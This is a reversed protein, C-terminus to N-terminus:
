SYDGRILLTAPGSGTAPNVEIYDASVYGALGGSSIMYWGNVKEGEITVVADKQLNGLISYSTGAGSRVRLPGATVKGTVTIATASLTCDEIALYLHNIVTSKGAALTAGTTQDILAASCVPAGSRVIIESGAKITLTSGAAMSASAFSAPKEVKGAQLANEVAQSVTADWQQIAADVETKIQTHDANVAEDVMTQVQPTFVNKLYSLTILPDDESGAAAAFVCTLAVVACVAPIVVKWKGKMM